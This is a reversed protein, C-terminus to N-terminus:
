LVQGPLAFPEGKADLVDKLDQVNFGKSFKWM